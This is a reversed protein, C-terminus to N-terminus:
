SAGGVLGAEVLFRSPLAGKRVGERVAFNTVYSFVLRDRARTAAVYMLRREEEEEGRRHPLTDENCGNVWVNPWELGKSKHISMLLVRDGGAQKDQRQRRAARANDEVYDLLEEVTEFRESVRILERVNAAHSQEISEGGNDKELWDIYGTRTILDTLIASPTANDAIYHEISRIISAWEHASERQRSQIGAGDAAALVHEAWPTKPPKHAKLREVFARGLYRFPANVCRRTADGDDDRKSAVRLYGLLDKVEKRDYFNTGGVVVYPIRKKLLSEELARSQANTRFLACISSPTQAETTMLLKVWDAFSDGEADLNANCRVDVEGQVGREAVMDVPLRISAPRIVANAAAVIMDGSRYNRNMVIVKAGPWEQEFTDLYHPSSGRFSYIAQALDGVVMVNQHDWGLKRVLSKQAVNDDQNEDILLYDWRGAWNLRNEELDLHRNAFVLFDDFTLLGRAEIHQQYLVYARMAMECDGRTFFLDEALNMAEESGEAALHAKCIGIYRRVRGFDAKKWDLNKYGIVERLITESYGSDVEWEGQPTQDDELIKLCLSHWTGVRMGHVGLKELREGLEDAAKKSFTTILISTAPIGSAVMRAVRHVLARTKGSGATALLKCPGDQHRIAELQESNMDREWVPTRDLSLQSM